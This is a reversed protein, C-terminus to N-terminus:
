CGRLMADYRAGYDKWAFRERAGRLLDRLGTQQRARELQATLAATFAETDDPPAIEVPTPEELYERLDEAGTRDTAAVHLGSSLGQAQVLALGEERSALAMVHAKAYWDTLQRQDIHTHHEFTPSSPLAVDVVPGVHVLRTRKDALGQWAAVLTDSGKRLSWEGVMIIGPAGELPPAPTAPFMNLDVGYPNRFLKRAPVGQDLFSQVAQKSPVVVLDALAYEALERHVAWDPVPRTRSAAPAVAELIARTSLIHRSGREVIITAGFRRRVSEITAVCLHSLGIFVDCRAVVRAAARDLALCLLHNAATGLRTGTLKRAAAHFVALHPGLWRSCRVPLGFRSTHSPPVLSYLAVDHGRADLERALDCLWFRGSSLLAIRM